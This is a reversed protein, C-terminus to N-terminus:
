RKCDYIDLFIFVRKTNSSFVLSSQQKTCGSFSDSPPSFAFTKQPDASVTGYRYSYSYYMGMPKLVSELRDKIFINMYACAATNTNLPDTGSCINPDGDMCAIYLDRVTMKRCTTTTEVLADNMNTGIQKQLYAVRTDTPKDLVIFGIVFLLGVSILLVVIAFGLLETQSKKNLIFKRNV